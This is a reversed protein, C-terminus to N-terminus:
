FTVGLSLSGLINVRGGRGFGAGEYYTLTQAPGDDAVDCNMVGNVVDEPTCPNIRLTKESAVAVGVGLGGTLAFGGDDGFVASNGIMLGLIFSQVTSTCTGKGSEPDCIDPNTDPQGFFDEQDFNGRFLTAEFLQYGAHAKLYFGRLATGQVYWGFRLAMDFGSEDIGDSFNDFIWSPVIEIALPLDGLAIEGELTVQGSILDFPDYRLSWLCCPKPPPERPRLPPAGYGHPAPPPGYGPQGFPPPGYPEPPQYPQPAPQPYPYPVVPAPVPPPQPQAEPQPEPPEGPPPDAPAPPPAVPPPPQDAPPQDAPPQDPPPQDPPPQALTTHSGLLVALAILPRRM